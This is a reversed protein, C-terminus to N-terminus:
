IGARGLPLRRDGGFWNMGREARNRDETEQDLRKLLDVIGKTSSLDSGSPGSDNDGGDRGKNCYSVLLSVACGTIFLPFVLSM